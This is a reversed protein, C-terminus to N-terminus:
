PQGMENDAYYECHEITHNLITCTAFNKTFPLLETIGRICLFTHM